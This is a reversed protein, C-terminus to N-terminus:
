PPTKNSLAPRTRLIQIFLFLTIAVGGKGEWRTLCKLNLQDKGSNLLDRLLISGQFLQSNCLHFIHNIDFKSLTASMDEGNSYMIKAKM